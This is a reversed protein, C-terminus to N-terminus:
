DYRITEFMALVNQPSTEPLISDLSAGAVFGGGASMIDLV